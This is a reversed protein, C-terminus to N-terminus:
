SRIEGIRSNLRPQVLWVWVGIFSSVSFIAHQALLSTLGNAYAFAMWGVNSALYSVFGWGALRGKTALLLTGGVGCVLGAFDATWAHAWLTAVFDRM